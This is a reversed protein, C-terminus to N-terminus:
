GDLKQTVVVQLFDAELGNEYNEKTHQFLCKAVRVIDKQKELVM